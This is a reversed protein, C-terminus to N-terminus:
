TQRNARFIEQSGGCFGSLLPHLKFKTAERSLESLILAGESTPLWFHIGCEISTVGMHPPKGVWITGTTCCFPPPVSATANVLTFEHSGM